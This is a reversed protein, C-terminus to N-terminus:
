ARAIVIQFENCCGAGEESQALVVLKAGGCFLGTKLAFESGFLVRNRWEERWNVARRGKYHLPIVKRYLHLRRAVSEKATIALIPFPSSLSSLMRASRGSATLLMIAAVGSKWAALVAAVMTTVPVLQPSKIKLILTTYWIELERGEEALCLAEVTNLIINKFIEIPANVDSIMVGDMNGNVIEKAVSLMKQRGNYRYGEEFLNSKSYFLPKEYKKCIESVESSIRQSVDPFEFVIGDSIEILEIIKEMCIESMWLFIPLGLKVHRTKFKIVEDKNIVDKLIIFDIRDDVEIPNNVSMTISLAVSRIYLSPYMRPILVAECVAEKLYDYLEEKQITRDINFINVGNCLLRYIDDVDISSQRIVVMINVSQFLRDITEGFKDRVVKESNNMIPRDVWWVM